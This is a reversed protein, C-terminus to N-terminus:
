RKETSDRILASRTHYLQSHGTRDCGGTGQYFYPVSAQLTSNIM